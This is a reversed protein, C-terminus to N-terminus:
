NKGWFRPHGPVCPYKGGSDNWEKSERSPLTDFFAFFKLSCSNKPKPQQKETLIASDEFVDLIWGFVVM